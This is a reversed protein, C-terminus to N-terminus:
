CLNHIEVFADRPLPNDETPSTNTLISLDGILCEVVAKPAASAMYMCVIKALGVFELGQHVIVFTYNLKSVKKLGMDLITDM